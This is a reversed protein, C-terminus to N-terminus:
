WGNNLSLYRAFRYMGIANAYIPDDVVVAQEFMSLIIDKVLCSGGGTLLIIDFSGVNDRWATSIATTVATRLQKSYMSIRDSLDIEKGNYRMTGKFVIDLVEHDKLDITPYERRIYYALAKAVNWCGYNIMASENDISRLSNPGVSQYNVTKSGVDIVGKKMRLIDSILTGANNFATYFVTGFPEPVVRVNRVNVNQRNRGLRKFSHEGLLQKALIHRDAEYFGVPLGTVINVDVHTASTIESMTGEFIRMWEDSTIWDRSERRFTYASQSVASYGVLVDSGELALMEDQKSGFSNVDYTGIVSPIGIIRSAYAAKTYSSGINLGIEM